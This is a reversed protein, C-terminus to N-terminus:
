TEGRQVMNFAIDRFVDPAIKFIEPKTKFWSEVAEFPTKVKLEKVLSGHRRTFIYYLLFQMLGDKMEELSQYKEVKVTAGKIIGNAREVMGNTKPTNPATLRHEIDDKKCEKDFKHNGSVVGKGRAWKDTFELGNDTLIHTIYFPFFEKCQELFDVANDATKSEYIKYFILRTSRDIAVFM